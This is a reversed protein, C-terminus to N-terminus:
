HKVFVKRCSDDSISGIEELMAHREALLRGRKFLIRQRCVWGGLLPYRECKHPVYCHGVERIYEKLDYHRAMWKVTNANPKHIPEDLSKEM